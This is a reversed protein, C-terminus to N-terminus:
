PSPRSSTAGMAPHIAPPTAPLWLSGLASRLAPCLGLSLLENQLGNLRGADRHHELFSAAILAGLPDRASDILLTEPRLTGRRLGQVQSHRTHLSPVLLAPDGCLRGVERRLPERGAPPLGPRPLLGPRPPSAAPAPASALPLRQGLALGILLALGGSLLLPVAALPPEQLPPRPDPAPVTVASPDPPPVAAAGAQWRGIAVSVDDGCGEGSIRDLGEALFADVGVGGEGTDSGGIAPHATDPHPAGPYPVGPHLAGPHPSHSAVTDWAPASPGPGAALWAALALFDADSACSKRIGDTCLVLSFPLVQNDLPWVWSRFWGGQAAGEQCLSATAEGAGPAAVEQSLLEAAGAPDVRVLDWDGLGALAWWRPTLLLLGLTSGYPVPSFPVGGEGGGPGALWHQRVAALWRQQLAIPLDEALWRRLAMLDAGAPPVTGAPLRALAAAVVEAAVECALASGVDSHHYAQGGHGDAVALLTLPLGGPLTFARQLTADQCPQGRRRHASGRRSCVGAVLWQSLM